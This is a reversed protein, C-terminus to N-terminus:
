FFVRDLDNSISAFFCLFLHLIRFLLGIGDDRLGLLFQSLLQNFETIAASCVWM